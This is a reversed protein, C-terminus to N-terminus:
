RRKQQRVNVEQRRREIEVERSGKWEVAAARGRGDGGSWNRRGVKAGWRRVQRGQDGGQV